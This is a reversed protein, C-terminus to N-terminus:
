IIRMRKELAKRLNKIEGKHDQFWQYLIANTLDGLNAGNDSALSKLEFHIPDLVKIMTFGKVEKLNEPLQFYDLVKMKEPPAATKLPAVEYDQNEEYPEEGKAEEEKIRVERQNERVPYLPTAVTGLDEVPINKEESLIKDIITPDITPTGEPQIRKNRFKNIDAM